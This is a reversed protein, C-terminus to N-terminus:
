RMNGIPTSLNEKHQRILASLTSCKINLSSSSAQLMAMDYANASDKSGSQLNDMLQNLKKNDLHIPEKFQDMLSTFTITRSVKVNDDM